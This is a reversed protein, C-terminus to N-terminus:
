LGSSSSCLPPKMLLVSVVAILRDACDPQIDGKVACNEDSLEAITSILSRHQHHKYGTAQKRDIERTIASYVSSKWGLHLM